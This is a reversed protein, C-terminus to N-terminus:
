RRLEQRSTRLQQIAVTIEQFPESAIGEAPLASKPLLLKVDPHLTGVYPHPSPAGIRFHEQLIPLM